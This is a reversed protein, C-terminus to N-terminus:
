RSRLLKPELKALQALSPLGRSKFLASTRTLAAHLAAAPRRSARKCARM